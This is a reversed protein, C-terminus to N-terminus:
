FKFSIMDPSREVGLGQRFSKFPTGNSKLPRAQDSKMGGETGVTGGGEVRQLAAWRRGNRDLM